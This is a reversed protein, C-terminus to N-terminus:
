ALSRATCQGRGCRIVPRCISRWATIARELGQLDTESSDASASYLSYQRLHRAAFWCFTRSYRRSYRAAFRSFTLFPSRSYARMRRTAEAIVLSAPMPNGSDRLDRGFPFNAPMVPAHRLLGGLGLFVFGAALAPRHGRCAPSVSYSPPM